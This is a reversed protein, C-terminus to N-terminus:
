IFFSCLCAHFPFLSYVHQSVTRFAVTADSTILNSLPSPINLYRSPQSWSGPVLAAPHLPLPCVPEPPCLSVGQCRSSLLFPPPALLWPANSVREREDRKKMLKKSSFTCVKVMFTVFNLSLIFFLSLNVNVTVYLHRRRYRFGTGEATKNFFFSLLIKSGLDFMWFCGLLFDLQSCHFLNM